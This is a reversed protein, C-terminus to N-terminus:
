KLDKKMYIVAKLPNNYYAETEIFGLRKYLSIASELKELTDLVMTKYNLKKAENIIADCLIKGISHHRYAPRVYLRKMECISDGELAQLAICGAPVTDYFAILLVGTPPGYKTLPNSLEKEFDQFNIDENLEKGYERFMTAATQLDMGQSSIKKIEIM